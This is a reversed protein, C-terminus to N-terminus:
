QHATPHTLPRRAPLREPCDKDWRTKQFEPIHCKTRRMGNIKLYKFCKIARRLLKTTKQTWKASVRDPQLTQRTLVSSGGTGPYHNKCCPMSNTYYCYTGSVFVKADYKNVFSTTRLATKRGLSFPLLPRLTRCSNCFITVRAGGVGSGDKWLVGLKERTRSYRRLEPELLWNNERWHKRKLFRDFCM